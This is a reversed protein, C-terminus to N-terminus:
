KLDRAAREIARACTNRYNLAEFPIESPTGNRCAKLIGVVHLENVLSNARDYYTHNWEMTLRESYAQMADRQEQTQPMQTSLIPEAKKASAIWDDIEKALQLGQRKLEQSNQPLPTSSPEYVFSIPQGKSEMIRKRLELGQTSFFEPELFKCNTFSVNRLRLPGGSYDIYSDEFRVDVWTIGDLYQTVNRMISDRVIANSGAGWIEVPPESTTGVFDISDFVVTAHRVVFQSDMTFVSHEGRIYVDKDLVVPSEFHYSPGNFIQRPSVAPVAGTQAMRTYALSQLDIATTWGAQKTKTSLAPAKLDNSLMIQAKVLLNPDVPIQNRSSTEVISNIAQVHTQLQQDPPRYAAYVTSRATLLQLRLDIIAAQMRPIGTFYALAVFAVALAGVLALRSGFIKLPPTKDEDFGKAQVVYAGVLVSILTFMVAISEVGVRQEERHLVFLNILAYIFAFASSTGYVKWRVAQEKLFFDALRNM